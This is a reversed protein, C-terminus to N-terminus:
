RKKEQRSARDCLLIEDIGQRLTNAGLVPQKGLDLRFAMTAIALPNSEAFDLREKDSIRKAKMPGEPCGVSVGPVEPVM